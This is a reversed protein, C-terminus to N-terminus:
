PATRPNTPAFFNLISAEQMTPIPPSAPAPPRLKVFIQTFYIVGKENRWVGLGSYNFDGRINHLHPPSSLWLAVANGAVANPDDTMLVNEGGGSLGTLEKGLERMRDRFGDHGFDVDGTAMDKSHARAVRAIASDWAFLPLGNEKRYRNILAFTEEELSRHLQAGAVAAAIPLVPPEARGPVFAAGLAVVPVLAFRFPRFFPASFDV